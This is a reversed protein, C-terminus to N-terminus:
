ERVYMRTIVDGVQIREPVEDGSILHGFVAHHGNLEPRDALTIYIQSDGLTPHGTPSAVGVAGRTHPRKKSIEAAGIPKGSSAADGKGWEDQLKPDRSRPDGFQILFGPAARHFRQGDYFGRKVLGVIHAVTKPADDSYTEFAFTGKTTEVVIVTRSGADQASPRMAAVACALVLAVSLARM